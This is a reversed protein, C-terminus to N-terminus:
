QLSIGMSIVMAALPAAKCTGPKRRALLQGHPGGVAIMSVSLYDVTPTGWLSLRIHPRSRAVAGLSRRM